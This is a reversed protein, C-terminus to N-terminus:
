IHITTLFGPHVLIMNTKLLRRFCDQQMNSGPYDSLSNLAMLGAVSFARCGYTNLRFRPVAILHRYNASRLHRRKDAGSVTSRRTVRIRGTERINMETKETSAANKIQVKNAWMAHMACDVAASPTTHDKQQDGGDGYVRCFHSFRNLHWKTLLSTHVWPVTYLDTPLPTRVCGGFLLAGQTSSLDV